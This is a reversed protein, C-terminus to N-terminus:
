RARLPPGRTTRGHGPVWRPGPSHITRMSITQAGSEKLSDIVETSAVTAIARPIWRTSRVMSHGRSGVAAFAAFAGIGSSCPCTGGVMSKGVVWSAVGGGALADSAVM